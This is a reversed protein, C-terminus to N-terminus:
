EQIIQHVGKDTFPHLHIRPSGTNLIGSLMKLEHFARTSSLSRNPNPSHLPTHETDLTKRTQQIFLRIHFVTNVSVLALGPLEAEVVGGGMDSTLVGSGWGGDAARVKTVIT